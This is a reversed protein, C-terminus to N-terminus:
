QWQAEGLAIGKAELETAMNNTPDDLIFADKKTLSRRGRKRKWYIRSIVVM